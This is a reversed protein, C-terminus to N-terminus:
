FRRGGGPVQVLRHESGVPTRTTAPDWYRSVYKGRVGNRFDYEMRSAHRADTRQLARRASIIRVTRGHDVHHVVLMRARDSLGMTVFSSRDFAPAAPDAITRSLPDGLVTAAEGLRVDGKGPRQNAPESWEVRLAM